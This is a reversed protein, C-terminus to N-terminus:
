IKSYLAEHILRVFCRTNDVYCLKPGIPVNSNTMALSTKTNNAARISGLEVYKIKNVKGQHVEHVIEINHIFMPAISVFAYLVANLVSCRPLQLSRVKCSNYYLILNCIHCAVRSFGVLAKWRVSKKGWSQSWPGDGPSNRRLYIRKNLERKRVKRSKTWHKTILSVIRWNKLTSYVQRM